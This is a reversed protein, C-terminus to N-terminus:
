PRWDASPAVLMKDPELRSIYDSLVAFDTGMMGDLEKLMDPNANRRKGIKFWRLQRLLYEYHQGQLRPSFEKDNGEGNAGHCDACHKEYLRKGEDLRFGPGVSNEPNMPLSAVYATVDTMNQAGGIVSELTFPYMVPNDRNLARIDALQKLLVRSHQGAVQPYRGNSSGWATLGHCGSCVGEYLKKGNALDPTLLLAQDLLTDDDGWSVPGAQAGMAIFMVGSFLLAKYNM